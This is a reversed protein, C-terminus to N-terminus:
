ANVTWLVFLIGFFREDEQTIFVLEKTPVFVESPCVNKRSDM